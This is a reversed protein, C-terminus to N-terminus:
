KPLGLSDITEPLLKGPQPSCFSDITQTGTDAFSDITEPIQFREKFRQCTFATSEMSEM